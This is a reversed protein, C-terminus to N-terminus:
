NVEIWVPETEVSRGSHDRAIARISFTGRELQWWTEFPPQSAQGVPQDNVLFTVQSIGDSGPRAVIRLRQQDKPLGEALQYVSNPDPSTLVLTSRRDPNRSPLCNPLIPKLKHIQAEPPPRNVTKFRLRSSATQAQTAPQRMDQWATPGM